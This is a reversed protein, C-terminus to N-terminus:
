QIWLMVDPRLLRLCRPGSLTAPRKVDTRGGSYHPENGPDPDIYFAKTSAISQTRGGLLLRTVYVLICDECVKLLLGRLQRERSEPLTSGVNLEM